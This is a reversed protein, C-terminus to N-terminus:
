PIQLPHYYTISNEECYQEITKKYPYTISSSDIAELATKYESIADHWPHSENNTLFNNIATLRDQIAKKFRDEDKIGINDVPEEMVVSDGSLVPKKIDRRIDQFDSDSIDKEIYFSVDLNHLDVNEDGWVKYLQKHNKDFFAKAM